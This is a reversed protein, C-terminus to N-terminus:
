KPRCRACWYTKSGDGNKREWMQKRGSSHWGRLEVGCRSCVTPGFTSSPKDRNIFSLVLWPVMIALLIATFWDM